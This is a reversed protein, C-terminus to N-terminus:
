PTLVQIDGAASPLESDGINNTHGYGLEGHANNGWCRAAGTSLLACTHSAGTAVQFATAGGLDVTAELPEVRTITNGYGLRGSGGNGWCKIGGSSLLACTHFDGTAVQLVHGGTDVDGATAPVNVNNGNGYGLQGHGGYGWCRVNGTTLVACTHFKGASLQLVNGGVNVNGATSPLESDGVNNGSLYGLQGFGNYGWCRVKGTDLLACTHSGGAVIDKVTGGVQVDGLSYPQENDGVNNTHGYGLQGFNNRGWCRVNGTDMLACTHEYGASLKVALGGLNVYGYSAIAEGDGVHATTNYGLQGYTNNGWCRVLGTDLLACTHRGGVALRSGLGVLEVDGASSPLEDDGVTFTNGYGLQGYTNLGWCRLTGNNFLVCTHSEGARITNIGTLGGEVVPNDPFQNPTLPYFLSTKGGNSDTVELTLTGQVDTTYNELTSPNAGTDTFGPRPDFSTGDAPAFSWAYTLSSEAEDDSVAAQFLVNGTGLVRSATVSNIVPNFLVVVDTHHVGDTKGPPKVKTKFTTTVSHGAKNTVKVTHEFDTNADVTPPAYQSVFTGATGLLTISGSTPYFTGSGAASTIEYTLTEGTNAEVSFSVNGSQDSGFISPVSIKKIRPISISQRDNAAALAIIVTENNGALTQETTGQFLLTGTSGLARASFVLAKNKPLFPIAGVWDGASLGLDFNLYLPTNSVKDTVDIRLSAVDTFSFAQASRLSSFASTHGQSASSTDYLDATKISFSATASDSQEQQSPQSNCGAIGFTLASLLVAAKRLTRRTSQFCLPNTM